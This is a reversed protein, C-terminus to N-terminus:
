PRAVHTKEVFGDKVLDSEGQWCGKRKSWCQRGSRQCSFFASFQFEPTNTKGIM